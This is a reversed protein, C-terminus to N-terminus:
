WLWWGVLVIANAGIIVFFRAWWRRSLPRPEDPFDIWLVLLALLSIVTLLTLIVASIAIVENVTPVIEAVLFGLISDVAVERSKSM